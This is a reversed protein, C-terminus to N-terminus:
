AKQGLANRVAIGVGVAAATELAKGATRRWMPDAKRLARAQNEAIREALADVLQERERRLLEARRHLARDARRATPLAAGRAAEPLHRTAKALPGSRRSRVLLMTGVGGALLVAVAAAVVPARRKVTDRAKEGRNRLEAITEGLEERTEEVERRTDVATEGV